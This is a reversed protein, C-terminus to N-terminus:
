DERRPRRLAHFVGTGGLVLVIGLTILAPTPSGTDVTGDDDRGVSGGADLVIRTGDTGRPTGDPLPPSRVEGPSTGASRGAAPSGPSAPSPGPPTAPRAGDGDGPAAPGNGVGAGAGPVPPGDATDGAAPPSAATRTSSATGAAAAPRLSGPDITPVGSGSSGALDTGGFTWLDVGGPEPEYSTAGLRSYSWSSSGPAAHWYSWYASAKPTLVCSEEQPTPRAAGSDYGTYSIRCVFGPGDHRTGTTRLGNQNLLAYGTTPTTGCSRVIPGGWHGFDVAVVVGRERTCYSMPRARARWRSPAKALDRAAAPAAPAAPAQGSRHGTAHAPSSGPWTGPVTLLACLVLRAGTRSSRPGTGSRARGHGGDRAPRGPSPLGDASPSM